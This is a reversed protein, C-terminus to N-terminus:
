AADVVCEAINTYRLAHRLVIVNTVGRRPLHVHTRRCPMPSALQGHFLEAPPPWDACKAKQMLFKAIHDLYRPVSLDMTMPQPEPRPMELEVQAFLTSTPHLVSLASRRIGRAVHGTWRTGAGPRM